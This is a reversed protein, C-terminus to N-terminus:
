KLLKLVLGKEINMNRRDIPINKIIWDYIFDKGKLNVNFEVEKGDVYYIQNNCWYDGDVSQYEIRCYFSSKLNFGGRKYEHYSVVQVDTDQYFDIYSKNGPRDFSMSFVEARYVASFARVIDSIFVEKSKDFEENSLGYVFVEVEQNAYVLSVNFVLLFCVVSIKM